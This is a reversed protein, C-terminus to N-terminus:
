SIKNIVEIGQMAIVALCNIPDPRGRFIAM